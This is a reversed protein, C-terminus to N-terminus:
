CFIKKEIFGKEPFVCTFIPRVESEYNGALAQEPKLLIQSM